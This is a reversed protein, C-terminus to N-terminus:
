SRRTASAPERHRDAWGAWFPLLWTLLGVVAIAQAGPPPPAFPGSIWIAAMLLLLSWLAISGVRDRARSYRVYLAIGVAFMAGEVALTAPVSSWLGLGLKTEGGPLLPLDPRHTAFDLLWHSVVLAGLLLADRVTGSQTRAGKRTAVFGFLTGWLAAALLSHTWPYNVFELPTFATDGPNVRVTEVGLLLLVPWVLDIWFTAAFLLGLSRRPLLPRAALAVAAHGVFM